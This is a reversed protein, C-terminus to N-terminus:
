LSNEKFVTERDLGAIIPFPENTIWKITRVDVDNYHSNWALITYALMSRKDLQLHQQKYKMMLERLLRIGSYESLEVGTAIKAFFSLSKEIDAHTTLYMFCTALSAPIITQVLRARSTFHRMQPWRNAADLIYQPPISRRSYNGSESEQIVLMHRLAAALVNTNKYGAINLIDSADRSRGCDITKFLEPKVGIALTIAQPIGCRIIAEMRHQGDLLRGLSESGGREGETSIKVTEGNLRWEGDTMLKAYKVVSMTSLRRNGDNSELLAEANQPSVEVTFFDIARDKDQRHLSILSEWSVSTKKKKIM